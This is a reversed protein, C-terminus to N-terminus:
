TKSSTDKGNAYTEYVYLCYFRIRISVEDAQGISSPDIFRSARAMQRERNIRLRGVARAHGVVQMRNLYLSGNHSMAPM